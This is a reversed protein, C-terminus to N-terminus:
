RKPRDIPKLIPRPKEGKRIPMKPRAIPEGSNIPIKPRAIPEASVPPKTRPKEREQLRSSMSLGSGPLKAKIKGKLKSGVSLKKLKSFLGM